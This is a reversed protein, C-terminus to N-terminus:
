DSPRDWAGARTPDPPCVVASNSYTGKITALTAEMEEREQEPSKFNLMAEVAQVAAYIIQQPTSARDAELAVSYEHGDVELEINVRM